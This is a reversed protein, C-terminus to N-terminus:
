RSGPVARARDVERLALPFWPVFRHPRARMWRRLDRPRVWRWEVVEAPDPEPSGEWRGVFVHDYEHETLGNGVDARYLLAGAQDLACDIGMEEKLRRHAADETREGPRPHSCCTNAWLGGSHYKGPARRQILLDGAHNHVLISFARHLLGARHALTKGATGVRRDAPDVLIVRDEIM